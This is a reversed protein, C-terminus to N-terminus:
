LCACDDAVVLTGASGTFGCLFDRVKWHDAIYESIHADSGPIICVDIGKAAMKTRLNQIRETYDPM